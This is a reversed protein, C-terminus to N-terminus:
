VDSLEKISGINNMEDSIDYIQYIIPERKM